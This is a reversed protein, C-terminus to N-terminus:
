RYVDGRHAISYIVPILVLTVCTSSMLGGFVTRALSTQMESGEGTGIVLPFLGLGTTLTTMLIPRLRRRGALIIAEYLQMGQEYRLTNTYDVLIIANNVVIGALMIAGIFAQINFLTNTLILM